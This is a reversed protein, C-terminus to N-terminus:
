CFSLRATDNWPHWALDARHIIRLFALGHFGRRVRVDIVGPVVLFGLLLPLHACLCQRESTSESGESPANEERHWPSGCECAMTRSGTSPLMANTGSRPITCGRGEARGGLGLDVSGAQTNQMLQHLKVQLEPPSRRLIQDPLEMVVFGGPHQRRGPEARRAGGALGREAWPVDREVPHPAAVVVITTIVITITIITIITIVITIVITTIAIIVTIIITIITTVITM